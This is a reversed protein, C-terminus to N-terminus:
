ASKSEKEKVEAVFEPHQSDMHRQVDKFSRNCCPCVGNAIRRKIRTLHGRIARKSRESAELQDRYFTVNSEAVRLRDRLKQAETKGTFHQSHGNPCYFTRQDKVRRDFMESPMAIPVGCSICTTWKLHVTQSLGTAYDVSM